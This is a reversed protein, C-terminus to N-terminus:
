YTIDWSFTISNTIPYLDNNNNNFKPSLEWELDFFPTPFEISLYLETSIEQNQERKLNILAELFIDEGLYKGITITTNNLYDGFPDEGGSFSERDEEILRRFLVSQIIQTRISFLDLNFTDRIKKEIPRILGFQSVIDSSLLLASLGANESFQQQIPAGLLATIELYSKAPESRFDPEFESLKKNNVILYIKVEENNQDRERIEAEITIRPDIQPTHENFSIKGSKIYFNRSFYFVDGSILEVDGTLSLEQFIDNYNLLLASGLKVNTRFIPLAFTPWLFDVNRGSEIELNIQYPIDDYDYNIDQIEDSMTIRSQYILIEGDIDISYEGGIVNIRGILYGDIFISGFDHVIHLGTNNDTWFDLDYEFIVWHSFIFNGEAFITSNGAKTQILNMKMTKEQFVLTTSFNNTIDPTLYFSVVVDETFLKGNFDPDNILGTISLFGAANGDEFQLVDEGILPNLLRMDFNINNIEADITNESIRGHAFCTFPLPYQLELEFNSDHSIFGKISSDVDEIFYLNSNETYISISLDSAPSNNILNDKFLLNANINRSLLINDPNNINYMDTRDTVTGSFLIDSEIINTFYESNYKSSFSFDGTNYNYWANTNYLHHNLYHGNFYTINLMKNSYAGVLTLTVPDSLLRGSNLAINIDYHPIEYTNTVRFVGTANGSLINSGFRTVPSEKFDIYIDIDTEKVILSAFYSEKNEMDSINLSGTFDTFGRVNFNGYGRLKSINDSYKINEINLIESNLSFSLSLFNDKTKIFPLNYFTVSSSRIFMEENRNIYGSINLSTSFYNDGFPILFKDSQITFIYQNNNEQIHGSLNYPGNFSIGYGAIYQIEFDYPYYNVYFQTKIDIQDRNLIANNSFDANLYGFVTNEEWVAHFNTIEFKEDYWSFSTIIYNNPNRSDKIKFYTSSIEITEFNTNIKIESNVSLNPLEENYYIIEHQYPSFIKYLHIVSINKLDIDMSLDVTLYEFEGKALIRNNSFSEDIQTDLFFQLKDQAPYINLLFENFGITGVTMEKGYVSMYGSNRSIEFTANLEEGSFSKVQILSLSGQPIFNEFFIDGEFKVTGSDSSIYLPELNVKEENGYLITSILLKSSIFKNSISASLNVNYDLLNQKLDFYINGTSTISASIWENLIDLNNKFTLEDSLIFDQTKFDVWFKMEDLECVLNIDIPAKDKIKTINIKDDRYVVQFTQNSVSFNDTALSDLTLQLDLWEFNIDVNGSTKIKSELQKEYIDEEKLYFIFNAKQLNFSIIDDNNSIHFFVQLFDCAFDDYYFYFDLNSGSLKINYNDKPEILLFSQVINIIEYDRQWDIQFQSNSLNIESVAVLPDEYFLMLFLNYYIRIKNIQLLYNSSNDFDYIRLDRIELYMFVSPSISDYSIKRGIKSELYEMADQKLIEMKRSIEKNIFYFVFFSFIFIIIFILIDKFKLFNISKKM